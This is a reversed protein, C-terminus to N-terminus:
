GRFVFDLIEKQPDNMNLTRNKKLLIITQYAFIMTVLISIMNLIVEATAMLVSYVRISLDNAICVIFVNLMGSLFFSIFIISSCINWFLLSHLKKGTFSLLAVVFRLLIIIRM